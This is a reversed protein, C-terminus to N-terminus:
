RAIRHFRHFVVVVALLCAVIGRAAGAAHVIITAGHSCPSSFLKVQVRTSVLAAGLCACVFPMSSDNQCIGDVQGSLLPSEFLNGSLVPLWEVFDPSFLSFCNGSSPTIVCFRACEVKSEKQIKQLLVPARMRIPVLCSRLCLRQIKKIEKRKAPWASQELCPLSPRGRCSTCLDGQNM